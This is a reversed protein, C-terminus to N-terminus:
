QLLRAASRPHTRDHDPAGHDCYQIVYHVQPHRASMMLDEDGDRLYPRQQPRILKMCATMFRQVCWTEM